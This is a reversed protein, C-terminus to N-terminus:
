NCNGYHCIVQVCASVVSSGVAGGIIGAAIGGGTIAAIAAGGIAGAIDYAAVQRWNFWRKEGLALLEVWDDHNEYWYTLSNIGVEIAALVILAEESTCENIARIRVSEYTSIIENVPMEVGLVQDLLDLLEKQIETLYDENLLDWIAFDGKKMSNSVALVEYFFTNSIEIAQAKSKDCNLLKSESYFIRTQYEAFSIIDITNWEAFLGKQKAGQLEDFVFSLGNNHEMGALQISKYVDIGFDVDKREECSFSVFMIALAFHLKIKKM